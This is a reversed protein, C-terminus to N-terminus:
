VRAEGIPVVQYRLGIEFAQPLSAQRRARSPYRNVAELRAAATLALYVIPCYFLM